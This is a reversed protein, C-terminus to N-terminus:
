ARAAAGCGPTLLASGFGFVVLTDRHLLTHERSTQEDEGGCKFCGGAQRQDNRDEDLPRCQWIIHREIM